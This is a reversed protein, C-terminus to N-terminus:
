YLSMSHILSSHIRPHHGLAMLLAYIVLTDSSGVTLIDYMGEFYEIHNFSTKANIRFNFHFIHIKFASGYGLFSM